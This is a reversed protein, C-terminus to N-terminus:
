GNEEPVEEEGNLIRELTPAWEFAQQYTLRAQDTREFIDGGAQFEQRYVDVQWLGDKDGARGKGTGPVQKFKTRYRM